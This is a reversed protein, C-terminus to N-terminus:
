KGQLRRQRLRELIDANPGTAPGASSDVGPMSPRTTSVSIAEGDLNQGLLVRKVKGAADYDLSGLTIAAVKGQAVKDGVKLALVKAVSTDEILALYEGNADIVGNFLMSKEPRHPPPVFQKTTPGPPLTEGVHDQPGHIFISRGLVLALEKPMPKAPPVTRSPIVKVPKKDRVGSPRSTAQDPGGNSPRTTAGNEEDGPQTTAQGGIIMEALSPDAIVAEMAERVIAEAETEPPTTTDPPTVPNGREDDQAVAMGASGAGLMLALMLLIRIMMRKKM